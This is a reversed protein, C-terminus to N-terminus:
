YIQQCKETQGNISINLKFNIRIRKRFHKLTMSNLWCLEDWKHNRFYKTIELHKWEYISSRWNINNNNYIINILFQNARRNIAQDAGWEDCITIHWERKYFINDNWFVLQDNLFTLLLFLNHKIFTVM